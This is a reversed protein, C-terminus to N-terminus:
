REEIQAILTNALDAINDPRDPLDRARQYSELAEATRGITALAMGRMLYGSATYTTTDAETIVHDADVLASEPVGYELYMQARGLYAKVRQDPSTTMGSIVATFDDEAAERNGMSHYAGARNVLAMVADESSPNTSLFKTYCDVAKSWEEALLNTTGEDFLRALRL